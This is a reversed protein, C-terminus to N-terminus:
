NGAKLEKNYREEFDHFISKRKFSKSTYTGFLMDLVPNTITFNKTTDFHHIDHIKQIYLFYKNKSLFHKRIHFLRHFHWLVISYIVSGVSAPLAYEFPILLFILAIFLPGFIKWELANVKVYGYAPRLNEPPYFKFHHKWHEYAIRKAIYGHDLFKHFLYGVVEVLPIGVFMFWWNAM